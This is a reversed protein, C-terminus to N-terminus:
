KGAHQFRPCGWPSHQRTLCSNLTGGPNSGAVMDELPASNISHASPQPQLVLRQVQRVDQIRPERKVLKAGSIKRSDPMEPFLQTATYIPNAEM